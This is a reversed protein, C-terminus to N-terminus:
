VEAVRREVASLLRVGRRAFLGMLRHLVGTDCALRTLDPVIIVNAQRASVAAIYTRM